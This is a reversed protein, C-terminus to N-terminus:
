IVVLEVAAGRGEATEVLALLRGVHNACPMLADGNLVRGLVIDCQPADAGIAPGVWGLGSANPLECGHAPSYQTSVQYRAPQLADRGNGAGAYSFFLQDVYLAGNKLLLKM